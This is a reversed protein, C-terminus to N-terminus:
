KYINKLSVTKMVNLPMFECAKSLYKKDFCIARNKICSRWYRSNHEILFTNNRLYNVYGEQEHFNCTMIDRLLKRVTPVLTGEELHLNKLLQHLPEFTFFTGPYSKLLDGLFTSGSRWTSLVLVRRVRSKPVPLGPTFRVDWPGGHFERKLSSLLLRESMERLETISKVPEPPSTDLHPLVHHPFHAPHKRAASASAPVGKGESVQSTRSVVSVSSSQQLPIAGEISPFHQDQAQLHMHLNDQQQLQHQYHQQQEHLRFHM